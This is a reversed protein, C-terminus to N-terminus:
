PQPLRRSKRVAANYHDKMERTVRWVEGYAADVAAETLGDLAVYLYREGDQLWCAAKVPWSAHLRQLFERGAEIEDMVLPAQDM